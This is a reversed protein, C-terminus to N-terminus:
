PDSVPLTPCGISGHGNRRDQTVKFPPVGPTLNKGSERYSHEYLKV